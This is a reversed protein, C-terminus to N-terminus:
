PGVQLRDARSKTVWANGNATSVMVRRFTIPIGATRAVEKSVTTVSAGSDVMFRVDQDNVKANVWFHGDEAMPFRVSEGAVIEGGTAEAKLRQGLSAFEGRFAFIIFVVGFIAVWALVMKAAKRLPLRMGVLSSAVFVILLIYYFIYPSNEGNM